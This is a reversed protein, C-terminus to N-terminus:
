LKCYQNTGTSTAFSRRYIACPRVPPSAAPTAASWAAARNGAARAKSRTPPRATRPWAAPWAWGGSHGSFFEWDALGAAKAIAKVRRAIQSESLGFVEKDGGVGAPRITDLARMAAPTIAVVAGAAEVDTKSRLVAIRGSGDDWHQVDGWTLVAAESRRLGADSLVAVLALNFRARQAAQEATELGCGRRRPQVATLRIVALVDATLAGAQRQLRALRRGWGKLSARVGRDKCPSEHGAWEHVKTIASTVLRLTAISAGDGVRVALYRAVTLSEAPMSRLDMSDCWDNFLRWLAAYVRKTNDSLVSELADAVGQDAARLAPAAATPRPVIHPDSAAITRRSIWPIETGTPSSPTIATPPSSRWNPVPHPNRGASSSGVPAADPETQFPTYSTEAVDAAGEMWYPIPTWDEEPIAETLDRLRAHQRVTISFRVKTKRCVAVIAHAYCGSDARVTLQGRAGGHRVRGVTERLFHAAGRATNARGERLRAMLVDGTGAAVALLPHYGRQGTYIHRRAGEKALGYTECITSDLDITLPGDGPGGGAAWAHGWRFSRLFTGLTSPAKIVCGIAGATGGTRLVDADDICDGGALASAVPTMVKDGTTARGPARGLDVHRDVLEGFGLRQALTLPLILGANAVLRHDDFAIQMRDPREPPLM